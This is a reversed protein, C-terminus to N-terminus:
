YRQVQNADCHVQFPGTTAPQKVGPVHAEDHPLRFVLPHRQSHVSGHVLHLLSLAAYKVEFCLLLMECGSMRVKRCHSLMGGLGTM